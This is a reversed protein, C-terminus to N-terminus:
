RLIEVTFTDDSTYSNIIVPFPHNNKFKLDVGGYSTAADKGKEVYGVAKSHPHREVIELKAEMAANYLTSSVQCIGGGYAKEEKGDVFIVAKQYNQQPGAYGVVENFSFTQGPRLVYNDIAVSALKMNHTRAKAGSNFKTSFKSLVEKKQSGEKQYYRYDIPAASIASVSLFALICALIIAYKSKSFKM